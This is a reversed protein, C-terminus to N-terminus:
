RRQPLYKKKLYIVTSIICAFLAGVAVSQWLRASCANAAIIVSACVAAILLLNVSFSLKKSGIAQFYSGCLFPMPLFLMAPALQRVIQVGLNIIGDTKTFIRMFQSPAAILVACAIASSLMCFVLSIDFSKNVRKTNGAGFNYGIIPAAASSVANLPVLVFTIIKSVYAFANVYLSGFHISLLKNIVFLIISAGGMQFLTPIGLTIMEKVTKPNIKIRKFSQSSFKAFFVISMLFSTFQSFVTALAAGTVGMDFIFILAYDAIINVATPLIWILLSYGMRGEARIISSFGTSFVNGAAIITFYERAYPMIDKTAGLLVLIKDTFVLSIISILVATSYFALMANATIGGAKEYEKKGLYQSVGVAAGGGITQAIAGQLIMFPYVISVGGMANDGIGYSVFISDVINYLASFILAAFTVSSYRLILRVLNEEGMERTKEPKSKRKSMM